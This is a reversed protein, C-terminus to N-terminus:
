QGAQRMINGGAAVLRNLPAEELAGEVYGGHAEAPWPWREGPRMVLRDLWVTFFSEPGTLPQETDADKVLCRFRVHVNVTATEPSFRGRERFQVLQGQALEITLWRPDVARELMRSGDARFQQLEITVPAGYATREAFLDCEFVMEQGAFDRVDVKQSLTVERDVAAPTKEDVVIKLSQRGTTHAFRGLQVLEVPAVTWGAPLGDAQEEFGPNAILNEPPLSAAAYDGRAIGRDRTDFYIHYAGAGGKKPRATWALWACDRGAEPDYETRYAFPVEVGVGAPRPEIVRLSAPDFEGPIGAGALLRRFDVAVEVPRLAEDRWPTPRVVATRFRWGDNWWM